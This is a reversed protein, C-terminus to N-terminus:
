WLYTIAQSGMQLWSKEFNELPAKRNKIGTLPDNFYIFEKDYGTVLVSHQKYTIKIKGSPTHWTQFFSEDLQNYATNIIVWVPRGDSLHIKLEQFSRGTLDLIKEPLYQNALIAIPKHYVGLGPKDYTYMNGVFGDYPNGFHIKGKEVTYPTPDKKVQEALTMKDANIGAHQLLMALSTVECGRPLQPMQEIMPAEILIHDEIKIISYDYKEKHFIEDLEISSNLTSSLSEDELFSYIIYAIFLLFFITLVSRFLAKLKKSFIVLLFLFLIIGAILLFTSTMFVELSFLLFSSEHLIKEKCHSIISDKKQM